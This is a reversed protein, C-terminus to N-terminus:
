PHPPSPPFILPELVTPHTPLREPYHLPPASIATFVVRSGKGLREIARLGVVGDGTGIDVLTMDPSLRAGDLVRDVFRAVANRVVHAYDSDDAHREHLLWNFWEDTARGNQPANM